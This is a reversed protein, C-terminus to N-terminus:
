HGDGVQVVPDGAAEYALLARTVSLADSKPHIFGAHYRRKAGSQKKANPEGDQTAM